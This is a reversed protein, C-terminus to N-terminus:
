EFCPKSTNYCYDRECEECTWRHWHWSPFKYVIKQIAGGCEPCKYDTELREEEATLKPPKARGRGRMKANWAKEAERAARVGGMRQAHRIADRRQRWHNPDAM